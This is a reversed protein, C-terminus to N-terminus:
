REFALVTIHDLVTRKADSHASLAVVVHDGELAVGDVQDLEGPEGLWRFWALGRQPDFALLVPRAAIARDPDDESGVPSDLVTALYAAHDDFAVQTAAPGALVSVAATLELQGDYWRLEGDADAAFATEVCGPPSSPSSPWLEAATDLQSASAVLGADDLESVTASRATGDSAFTMVAVAGEATRRVLNGDRRPLPAAWSPEGGGTFLAIFAPGEDRLLAGTGFDVSDLGVGGVLAISGDSASVSLDQLAPLGAGEGVFPLELTSPETQSREYRDLVVASSTTAGMLLAGESFAVADPSRAPTFVGDVAGDAALRAAFLGSVEGADGFDLSARATDGVLAVGGKPDGLLTYFTDSRGDNLPKAGVDLRFAPPSTLEPNARAPSHSAEGGGCAGLILCASALWASQPRPRPM